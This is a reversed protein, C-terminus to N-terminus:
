AHQFKKEVGSQTKYEKLIDEAKLTLDNSCLVFTCSEKFKNAVKEEDINISMQLYHEYRYKIKSSDKPQRGKNRKEIVHTSINITHYKIKKFDKKILKLIEKNADEECAFARKSYAKSIKEVAEKERKVQREVTKKKIGELATSYCIACVLDTNEYTCFKESIFYEVVKGQATQIEIKKMDKKNILAEKICGKALNTTEPMRTILKLNRSEAKKLNDSTFLASDAIYHFVGVSVNLRELVQEVEELTEGNYTKDDKNGSLVKADVIVGNAVGIGMKIQKKDDRKQKSHGFDISIVGEKGEATEYDGWMVKSTTDYNINTVEIGYNMFAQSSLQSFIRRAGAEYFADLFKGFRDDNIQSLSLPCHFIGELDKMGYYENLRYLPYHDDCINVIMMEAMVGYPIDTNRGSSKDLNINFIEPLKLQECLGVMFNMKGHIYMEMNDLSLNNIDM